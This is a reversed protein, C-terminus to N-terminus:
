SFYLLALNGANFHAIDRKVPVWTQSTLLDEEHELHFSSFFITWSVREVCIYGTCFTSRFHPLFRTPIWFDTLIKPPIIYVPFASSLLCTLLIDAGQDARRLKLSWGEWLDLKQTYVTWWVCLSLHHNGLSFWRTSELVKKWNWSELPHSIFRVRVALAITITRM